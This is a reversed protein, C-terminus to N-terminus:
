LHRKPVNSLPMLIKKLPFNTVLKPKYCVQELIQRQKIPQLNEHMIKRHLFIFKMCSREIYFYLNTIRGDYYQSTSVVM